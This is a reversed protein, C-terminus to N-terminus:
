RRHLGLGRRCGPLDVMTALLTASHIRRDDRAAMYALTAVSLIGGICFGLLNVEEEGTAKEIADLAALPGERMYDEFDKHALEKRPNRWSIVFLTHGQEVTWKILSNKPQLDMVYFKNIWPPVFLLPRRHVKEGSPAYQILEMLENRFVVKGPSTAINRGVEFASTDTMSIKLQGAGEEIDQLLNKFGKLLNEGGSTMTERLVVPNTAVFNSPAVASLFQRTYFDVKEKDKPDLDDVDSVLRNVWRSTLLYSQKIYDFVLTENWSADKFRRDGRESEALAEVSEGQMRRLTNEWLSLNSQWLAMQANALRAPDSALRTMMSVFANGVGKTDVISFSNQDTQREAFAQMARMSQEALESWQEALKSADQLSPDRDSTPKM